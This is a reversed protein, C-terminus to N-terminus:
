LPRLCLLLLLLLPLLFGVVGPVVMGDAEAEGEEGSLFRDVRLLSFLRSFFGRRFLGRFLLLVPERRESV